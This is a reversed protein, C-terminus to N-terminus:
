EDRRCYGRFFLSGATLLFLGSLLILGDSLVGFYLIGFIGLSLKILDSIRPRLMFLCSNLLLLTGYGALVFALADKIRIHDPMSWGITIIEPLLVLLYLIMYQLLRGFLPVPLGGYFFLREEEMRRMQYILAGHGLLAVSFVLFPMRVDYDGRIQIKLLLYLTGCGFLKIGTLLAKHQTLLYRMLISWYSPSTELKGSQRLFPINIWKDPYFLVRQYLSTSTLCVSIIFCIVLIAPIWTSQFVAIIVVAITYLIVPLFLMIQIELLLRFAKPKGLLSLLHLFAHDPSQILSIIWRSCKAAYLGWCLLVLALFPPTYLIGRILTYHYALQQSPAVLGFFFLFFFLFFGANQRYYQRVVTKWLLQRPQNM